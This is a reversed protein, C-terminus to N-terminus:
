EKNILDNIVSIVIWIIIFGLINILLRISATIIEPVDIFIGTIVIGLNFLLLILLISTTYNWVKKTMKDM